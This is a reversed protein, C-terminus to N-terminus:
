VSGFPWIRLLVKGIIREAPICGVSASRSDQCKERNDGLLFYQGEPVSLPLPSTRDGSAKKTLYPEALAEGDVLVTGAEDLSVQQGPLAVCRKILLKSGLEVTVVDGQRINGCPVALVLDGEELTPAMSSGCIRLVPLTLSLLLSLAALALLCLAATRRNIVRGPKPPSLNSQRNDARKNKTTLLM